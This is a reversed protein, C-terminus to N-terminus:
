ATMCLFIRSPKGFEIERLQLKFIKHQRYFHKLLTLKFHRVVITISLKSRPRISSKIEPSAIQAIIM